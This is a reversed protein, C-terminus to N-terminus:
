EPELDLRVSGHSRVIVRILSLYWKKKVQLTICVLVSGVPNSGAYRLGYGLARDM